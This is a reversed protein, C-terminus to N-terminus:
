KLHLSYVSNHVRCLLVRTPYPIFPLFFLLRFLSLSLPCQWFLMTQCIDLCLSGTRAKRSNARYSLPLEERYRGHTVNLHNIFASLSFRLQTVCMDEHPRAEPGGLRIWSRVAVHRLRMTQLFTQDIEFVNSCAVLCFDDLFIEEEDIKWRSEDHRRVNM